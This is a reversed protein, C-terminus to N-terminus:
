LPYERIFKKWFLVGEALASVTIREDV